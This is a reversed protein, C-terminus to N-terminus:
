RGTIRRQIQRLREAGRSNRLHKGLVSHQLYRGIRDRESYILVPSGLFRSHKYRWPQWHDILAARYAEARDADNSLVVKNGGIVVPFLTNPQEFMFRMAGESVAPWDQNFYDDLIVIGGATLGTCALSIDYYTNEASHGGDVSFLRASKEMHSRIHEPKLDLSNGEHIIVRYVECGHRQLNKEFHQRDGRGSRDTNGAQQDFLDYAHGKKDAGALLCLLIFLKGHHIGIEAVDGDLGWQQQIEAVSCIIEVADASLWGDVRKYGRSRYRSLLEQRSM